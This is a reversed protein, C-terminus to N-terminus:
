GLEHEPMVADIAHPALPLLLGHRERRSAHAAHNADLTSATAAATAAVTAAVIIPAAADVGAIALV